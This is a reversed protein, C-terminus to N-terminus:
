ELVNLELPDKIRPDDPAQMVCPFGVDPHSQRPPVRDRAAVRLHKPDDDWSGGRVVRRRGSAPGGLLAGDFDDYHSESYWDSCWEWVNGAMHYLGYRNASFTTM